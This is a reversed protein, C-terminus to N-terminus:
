GNGEQQPRAEEPQSGCKAALTFAQADNPGAGPIHAASASDNQDEARHQGHQDNRSHYGGNAETATM